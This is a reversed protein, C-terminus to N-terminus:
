RYKYFSLLINRRAAYPIAKALSKYSLLFVFSSLRLFSSLLLFFSPPWQANLLFEVKGDLGKTESQVAEGSLWEVV